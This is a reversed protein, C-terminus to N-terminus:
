KSTRIEVLTHQPNQPDLGEGVSTWTNKTIDFTKKEGSGVTTDVQAEYSNGKVSYVSPLELTLWGSNGTVQFCIRDQKRASVELFGTGSACDVLVIHGDGRKLLINREALIKDAGPYSFDEVAYPPIDDAAAVATNAGPNSGSAAGATLAVWALAGLTATGVGRVVLRKRQLM